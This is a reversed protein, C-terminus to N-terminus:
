RACSARCTRDAAAPGTRWSGRSRRRSVRVRRARGRAGCAFGHDQELVVVVEEREIGRLVLGDGDDAGEGCRADSEFAVVVGDREVWDQGDVADLRLEAVVVDEVGLARGVDHAAFEGDRAGHEAGGASEVTSPRSPWYKARGLKSPAGSIIRRSLSISKSQAKALGTWGASVVVWAKATRQVPAMARGTASVSSSGPGDRGEAIGAAVLHFEGDVEVAFLELGRRRWCRGGALQRGGAAVVSGDLVEGNGEGVGAGVVEADLVGLGGADGAGADGEFPARAVFSRCSWATSAACFASTTTAKTPRM